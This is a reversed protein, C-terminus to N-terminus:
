CRPPGFLRPLTGAVVGQETRGLQVGLDSGSLNAAIRWGRSRSWRLLRTRRRRLQKEGFQLRSCLVISTPVPRRQWAEISMTKDVVVVVVGKCKPVASM